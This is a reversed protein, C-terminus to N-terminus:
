ILCKIERMVVLLRERVKWLVSSTFKEKSRVTCLKQVWQSDEHKAAFSKEDRATGWRRAGRGRSKLVLHSGLIICM